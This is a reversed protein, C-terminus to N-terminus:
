IICLERFVLNLIWERFSIFVFNKVLKTSKLFSSLKSKLYFNAYCKAGTAAQAKNGFEPFVSILKKSSIPTKPTQPNVDKKLFKTTSSLNDNHMLRHILTCQLGFDMMIITQRHVFESIEDLQLFWFVLYEECLHQLFYVAKQKFAIHENPDHMGDITVEFLERFWNKNM